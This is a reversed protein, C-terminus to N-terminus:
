ESTLAVVPDVRGARVSPGVVAVLAALVLVIPAATFVFPDHVGVGYVMVGVFRALVFAVALGIVVGAIALRMGQVVVMLRVDSVQAGLTLRIGIERRRQAVSYAMLGYIGIAALMLAVGGFTTMLWLNFRQRSTSQSVISDMSRVDSVPLGTAQAIQAQVTRGITMPDVSTRVIWNLPQISLSLANVDDPLQAQPVFVMPTPESNLGADRTDGVVGIIQREPEDAFQQVFTRGIILRDNLPDKGPWFRRAMAENIVAVPPAAANDRDTFTRGRRVPIRFVEFYGASAPRWGSSGHEPGDLPRGAIVFRLSFGDQLPVCCTATALEVGAVTRLRDKVNLVVREVSASTRWPAGDLSTQLTLVNDSEFGPDVRALAIASRVLLAAGVLLVLALTMEGVVLVSRSWNPAASGSRGGDKLAATLDSRSGRLAPAVGFLLGTAITVAMTFALVRWDVVVLAGADGVRPLGATNISLLARIGLVGLVFGVIGATLSLVVSETLLQRFIRGRSGGIAARIAMERTRGAARALLLSAVNACAILLVLLVAGALVRLQARVNGILVDRIPDVSFTESPHLMGPFRARWADAAVQLRGRAQELAVGPKLRGVATLYHGQETTNPDFRLPTWVEPSPGFEDFPFDGLVGVVVHPAGALSIARGLIDPASNFRREWVARSLVVARPGHPRDEDGTFGRGVVFPADFLRFFDASVEGSRVHEPLAGATFTLVGLRFASVDAVVATQERWYQFKAPSADASRGNPSMHTFVVLRDPDPAAVPRLLVANMVSFVATNVGIGLALTLVAVISLAPSRRLARIAYRVDRWCSELRTQWGVDRTYDKIAELSGWVM